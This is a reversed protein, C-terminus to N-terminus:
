RSPSSRRTRPSRSPPGPEPGQRQDLPGALDGGARGRGQAPRPDLIQGTDRKWGREMSSKWAEAVGEEGLTQQIYTVLGLMSEAMLDHLFRWEHRMGQCLELAREFEGAEIAEIARDMTPRSMEALEEPTFWREDAM